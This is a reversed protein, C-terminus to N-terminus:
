ERLTSPIVYEHEAHAAPLTLAAPSVTGPPAAVAHSAVIQPVMSRTCDLAHATQGAPVVLAAPPCWADPPSVLQVVSTDGGAAFMVFVVSTDGGAAFVVFVVSMDGGAAFVVFVVSTDGGAAFM